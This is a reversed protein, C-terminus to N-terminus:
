DFQPRRKGLFANVGEEFDDTMVCDFFSKREAELQTRLDNHSSGNILRKTNAYARAPGHALRQVLRKGTQKLEDDAVVWNVLGLELARTSDFREGLLALEMARKVGVIRPLAYTASGDPSVGIGCYALTFVSSEAAMVLDCAMMLSMGFGAVAGHVCALVPQSMTRLITVTQHIDEFIPDLKACNGQALEPQIEKFYSLDGGAMFAPGSGALWVVRVDKNLAIDAFVSRLSAAMNPDLANLLQPRDLQIKAINNEIYVLVSDSM